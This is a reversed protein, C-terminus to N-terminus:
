VTSLEAQVLKRYSKMLQCTVPGVGKHKVFRQGNMSSWPMVELLSNVLFAEDALRIDEITLKAEQCPIELAKACTFVKRRTIGPLCGHSVSPTLVVNDRVLFCNTRSGEVLHGYRNFLIAEDFGKNQAQLLANKFLRYDISKVASFKSVNRQYASVLVSFGQLHISKSLKPLPLTVIAWRTTGRETWVSLRVRSNPLRNIKLLETAMAQMKASTLKSTIQHVKLGQRLRSWHDKFAFIRGQYARMTEFVGRKIMVGPTLAQLQIEDVKVLDQDLYIYM